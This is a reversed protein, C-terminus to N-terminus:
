NGQVLLELQTRSYKKTFQTHVLKIDDHYEVPFVKLMIERQRHQSCWMITSTEVCLRMDMHIKFMYLPLFFHLFFIQM